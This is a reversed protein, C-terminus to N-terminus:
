SREGRRPHVARRASGLREGARAGPHRRRRRRDCVPERGRDAARPRAAAPGLLVQGRRRLAAHRARQRRPRPRRAGRAHRPHRAPPPLAARVVPRGPDRRHSHAAGHQAAPARRDLPPRGAPRGPAARHHGRRAPQGPPRDVQRLHHPRRVAPHLRDLGAARLEHVRDQPRRLQPRQRHRRRRLERGVRRRAPEHLVHAGPRRLHPRLLDAQERLAREDAAGHRRGAGRGARRHRGPQHARRHRSPPVRRRALGRGPARAGRDRRRRQVPQRRHLDRRHGSRRARHHERGDHRHAGRRAARPRRAHGQPHRRGPRQGHPAGALGRADHRARAGPPPHSRRGPEDRRPGRGPRRLSIWVDDVYRVLDALADAPVFEGLWGGVEPSLTLKGDSFAGAGGWGCTVDCPSCNACVGTDRAPCRRRDIDPGQELLLCPAATAACSSSRPSSAPPAPGPSSATTTHSTDPGHDHRPSAFPFPAERKSIRFGRGISSLHRATPRKTSRSGTRRAERRTGRRAARRIRDGGALTLLLARHVIGDKGAAADAGVRGLRDVSSCTSRRSRAAM